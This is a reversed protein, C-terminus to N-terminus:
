HNHPRALRDMIAKSPGPFLRCLKLLVRGWLPSVVIEAKGQAAAKLIRDAATAASLPSILGAVAGTAEPKSESEAELQATDVDSPIALTLSVGTGALENRLSESFGTLAYKSAGYATYGAVGLVGAMSSVMLIQGQGRAKMGPLVAQTMWVQGLFNTNIMEQFNSASLNEFRACCAIGANNILIDVQDQLREQVLDVVAERDSIDLRFARVHCDPELEARMSELPATQRAVLILRTGCRALNRCLAAGIGSSAGSVLVTKNRYYTSM